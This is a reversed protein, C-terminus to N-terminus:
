AKQPGAARKKATKKTAPPPSAAALSENSIANISVSAAGSNEAAADKEAFDYLDRLTTKPAPEEDSIVLKTVAGFHRLYHAKVAAGHQAHATFLRITRTPFSYKGIHNDGHFIHRQRYVHITNNM